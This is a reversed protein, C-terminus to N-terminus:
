RAVAHEGVVEMHDSNSAAPADDCPNIGRGVGRWRVLAIQACQGLRVFDSARSLAVASARRGDACARRWSPAHECPGFYWLCPIAEGVGHKTWPLAFVVTFCVVMCALPPPPSGNSVLEIKSLVCIFPSEMAHRPVMGHRHGGGGGWRCRRGRGPGAGGGRREGWGFAVTCDLIMCKYKYPVHVQVHVWAVCQDPLATHQRFRIKSRWLSVSRFKRCWVGFSIAVCRPVCPM